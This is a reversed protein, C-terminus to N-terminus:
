KFNHEFRYSLSRDYKIVDIFNYIAEYSESISQNFLSELKELYPDVLKNPRYNVVFGQFRKYTFKIKLVLYILGRKYFQPALLLRDYFKMGKLSKYLEKKTAKFYPEINNLTHDNVKIHDTLKTRLPDLRDKVMFYRDLETEIEFHTVGTEKIITNIYPHCNSDLIYHCIFGCLYAFQPASKTEKLIELAQYFFIDAREKHMASGLRNIKSHIYPRNYFLIDPGHLGIDFLDQNTELVRKLPQNLKDLVLQGLRYHSYAAPM